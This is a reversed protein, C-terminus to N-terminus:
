IDLVIRPGKCRSVCVTMLNGQRREEDTLVEDRHDPEGELVDTVCLGCVGEMCSTDVMVGNEALVQLVTKNAPVTLTKGSRALVVEFPEDGSSQNGGSQNGGSQDAGDGPGADDASKSKAPGFSEWFAGGLEPCREVATRATEIFPAPGCIYVQAGAPAAALVEDIRSPVRDRGVGFHFSVRDSFSAEVLLDHFAAREKDRAFYHLEFAQGRDAADKAMSLLPTIGIGAALLVLAPATRDLPFNNVPAGVALTDGVQLAHVAVSGGRSQEERKVAIQYYGAEGPGNCLSYQRVLGEGLRLIVHAGPEPDPLMGGDPDALTLSLVDKAEMRRATVALSLTSSAAVRM